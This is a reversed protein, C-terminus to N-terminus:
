PVSNVHDILTRHILSLHSPLSVCPSVIRSKTAHAKHDLTQFMGVTNGFLWSSYFPTKDAKGHYVRPLLTPDSFSLLNPAIRVIPGTSTYKTALMHFKPIMFPWRGYQGHMKLGRTPISKITFLIYFDTVSAWFPGPYDSLPHFYRNYCGKAFFALVCLILATYLIDPLGPKAAFPQLSYPGDM